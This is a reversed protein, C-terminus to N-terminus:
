PALYKKNHTTTILTTYSSSTISQLAALARTQGMGGRSQNVSQHCHIVLSV